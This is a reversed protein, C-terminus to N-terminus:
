RTAKKSSRRPAKPAVAVARRKRRERYEQVHEPSCFAVETVSTDHYYVRSGLKVGCITCSEAAVRRPLSEVPRTTITEKADDEAKKWKARLAEVHATMTEAESDRM